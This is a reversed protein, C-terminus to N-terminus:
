NEMATTLEWYIVKALTPEAKFIWCFFLITVYIKLFTQFKHTFVWASDPAFWPILSPKLVMAAVALIMVSPPFPSKACFTPFLAAVLSCEFLCLFLKCTFYILPLPPIFLCNVRLTMIVRYLKRISVSTTGWGSVVCNTGVATQAGQAPIRVVGVKTNLTLPSSLKVFLFSIWFSAM